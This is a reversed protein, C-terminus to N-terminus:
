LNARIEFTRVAMEVTSDITKKGRSRIGRVPIAILSRRGGNGRRLDLEQAKWEPEAAM